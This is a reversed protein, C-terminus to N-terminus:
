SKQQTALFLCSIIPLQIEVLNHGKSKRRIYEKLLEIKRATDIRDDRMGTPVRLNEAPYLLSTWIFVQTLILSIIKLNIPKRLNPM